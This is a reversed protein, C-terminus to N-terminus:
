TFDSVRPGCVSSQVCSPAFSHVLCLWPCFAPLQLGYARLCLVTKPWKKWPTHSVRLVECVSARITVGFMAKYGGPVSCFIMQFYLVLLLSYFVSFLLCMVTMLFTSSGVCWSLYCADQVETSTYM